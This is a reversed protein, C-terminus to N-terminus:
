RVSCFGVTANAAQAGLTERIMVGVERNSSGGQFSVVRAVITGDGSLSQYAFHFADTTGYIQAGAGQLTFTGNSYTASGAVGTSGIDGDSWGSPLAQANTYVVYGLLIVLLAFTRFNLKSGNLQM